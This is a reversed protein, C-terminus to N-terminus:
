QIEAHDGSRRGRGRESNRLVRIHMADGKTELIVGSPFKSNSCNASGSYMYVFHESSFRDGDLADGLAQSIEQLDRKAGPFLIEDLNGIRTTGSSAVALNTRNDRVVRTKQLLNTAEMEHLNRM